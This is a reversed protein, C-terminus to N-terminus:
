ILLMAMVVPEADQTNTVGDVAGVGAGVNMVPFEAADSSDVTADILEVIAAMCVMTDPIEVTAAVAELPTETFPPKADPSWVDSPDTDVRTPVMEVATTPLVLAAVGSDERTPVTEVVTFLLALVAAETDDRTPVTEVAVTPLVLAALVSEESTPDIEVAAIAASWLTKIPCTEVASAERVADIRVATLGRGTLATPVRGVALEGDMVAPFVSVRM